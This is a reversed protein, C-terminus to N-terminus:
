ALSSVFYALYLTRNMGFFFLILVCSFDFLRFISSCFFSLCLFNWRLPNRSLGESGYTVLVSNRRVFDIYYWASLYHSSLFIDILPNSASGIFLNEWTVDLSNYPIFYPSNRILDQSHFPENWSLCLYSFNGLTEKLSRKSWLWTLM